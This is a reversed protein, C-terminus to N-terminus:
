VMLLPQPQFTVRCLPVLHSLLPEPVAANNPIDGSVLAPLQAHPLTGTTIDSAAVTVNASLAHGNVTTSSTVYGPVTPTGTFVPSALSAAGTIQAVTYDGSAATVTGTRGFVSSV